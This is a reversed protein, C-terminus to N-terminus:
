EWLWLDANWGLSAAVAQAPDTETNRLPHPWVPWVPEVLFLPATTAQWNDIAWPSM